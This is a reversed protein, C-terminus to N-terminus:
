GAGAAFCYFTGRFSLTEPVPASAGKKKKFNAGHLTKRISFFLNQM